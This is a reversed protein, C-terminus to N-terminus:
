HHPRAHVPCQGEVGLCRLVQTDDGALLIDSARLSFPPFALTWRPDLRMKFGAALKIFSNVYGGGRTKDNQGNQMLAGAQQHAIITLKADRTLENLFGAHDDHHHTLFLYRVRDLPIGAKALNKRYLPYDHEYGADVQLYGGQCPLLFVRSMSLPIAIPKM